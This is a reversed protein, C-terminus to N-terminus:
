DRPHAQFFDWILDTANIRDTAKGLYRQPLCAKGGPWHHGLGLLQYFQVGTNDRCEEYIVGEILDNEM